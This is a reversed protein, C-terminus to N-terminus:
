VPFCIAQKNISNHNILIHKSLERKSIGSSGKQKLVILMRLRKAILESYICHLVNLEKISEKVFVVLLEAM